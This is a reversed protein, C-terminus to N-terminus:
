KKTIYKPIWKCSFFSENQFLFCSETLEYENNLILRVRWFLLALFPFIYFHAIRLWFMPPILFKVFALGYVYFQVNEQENALYKCKSHRLRMPIRSTARMERCSKSFPQLFIHMMIQWVNNHFSFNIPFTYYFFVCIVFLTNKKVFFQKIAFVFFHLTLLSPLNFFPNIVLTTM